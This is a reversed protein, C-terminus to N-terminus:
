LIARAEARWKIGNKNRNQTRRAFTDKGQNLYYYDCSDSDKTEARTTYPNPIRQNEHGRRRMWREIIEEEKKGQSFSLLSFVEISHHESRILWNDVACVSITMALQKQQRIAHIQIPWFTDSSSSFKAVISHLCLCMQWYSHFCCRDLMMTAIMFEHSMKGNAEIARNNCRPMQESSASKEQELQTTDICRKETCTYKSTCRIWRAM